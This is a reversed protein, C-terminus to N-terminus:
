ESSSRMTLCVSRASSFLASPATLIRVFFGITGPSLSIATFGLARLAFSREASRSAYRHSFREFVCDALVDPVVRDDPFDVVRALALQPLRDAQRRQEDDERQEKGPRVELHRQVAVADLLQLLGLVGFLFHRPLQP